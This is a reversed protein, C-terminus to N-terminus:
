PQGLRREVRVVDRQDRARGRGEAAKPVRAVQQYRDRVLRRRCFADDRELPKACDLLTHEVQQAALSDHWVRDPATKVM